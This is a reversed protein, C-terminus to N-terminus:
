PDTRDLDDTGPRHGWARRLWERLPEVGGRLVLAALVAGFVAHALFVTTHFAPLSVTSFVGGVGLTRPVPGAVFGLALLLGYVTGIGTAWWMRGRVHSPFSGVLLAFVMGFAAGNWAHDLYGVVTSTTNPGLTIREMARMGMLTPLDGPMSGFVRFGTIRVLELGVTAVLGAGGGVLIGRVLRRWRMLAALVLLVLVVGVAPAGVHILLTRFQWRGTASLAFLPAGSVGAALLVLGTALLEGM